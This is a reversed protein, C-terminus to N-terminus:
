EEREPPTIPKWRKMGRSPGLGEIVEVTFQKEGPVDWEILVPEQKPVASMDASWDPELTWGDTKASGIAADWIQDILLVPDAGPDWADAMAQKTNEEMTAKDTM